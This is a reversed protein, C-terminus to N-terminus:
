LTLVLVAMALAFLVLAGGAGQLIRTWDVPPKAPVPSPAPGILSSEFSGPRGPADGGRRQSGLGGRRRPVAEEDLRVAATDQRALGTQLQWMLATPQAGAANGSPEGASESPATRLSVEVEGLRLGEHEALRHHVGPELPEGDAAAWTESLAEVYLRGETSRLDLHHEAVSPHDIRLGCDAGRGLRVAEGTADLVEFRGDPYLVEARFLVPPM